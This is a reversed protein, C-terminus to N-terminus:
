KLPGEVISGKIMEVVSCAFDMEVTEGCKAMFSFNHTMLFFSTFSAIFICEFLCENFDVSRHNSLEQTYPSVVTVTLPCQYHSLVFVVM